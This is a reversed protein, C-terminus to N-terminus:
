TIDDDEIMLYMVSTSTENIIDIPAGGDTSRRAVVQPIFVETIILHATTLYFSTYAGNTHSLLYKSRGVQIWTRNKQSITLRNFAAQLETLQEGLTKNAASEALIKQSVTINSKQQMPTEM